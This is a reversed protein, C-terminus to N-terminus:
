RAGNRRVLRSSGALQLARGARADHDDGRARVPPRVQIEGIQHVLTDRRAQPRRVRAGLEGVHQEHAREGRAQRRRPTVAFASCGPTTAALQEAVQRRRQPQQERADPPENM